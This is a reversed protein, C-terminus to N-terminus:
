NKETGGVNVNFLETVTYQVIQLISGAVEKISTRRYEDETLGEFVEQLLPLFMKWCKTVTKIVELGIQEESLNGDMLRDIDIAKLIDECTGTMLTFDETVYTKEIKKGKEYINLKLDM